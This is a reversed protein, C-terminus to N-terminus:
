KQNGMANKDNKPAQNLIEEPVLSLKKNKTQLLLPVLNEKSKACEKKQAPLKPLVSLKLQIKDFFM